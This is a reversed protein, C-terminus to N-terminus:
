HIDSSRRNNARKIKECLCYLGEYNGNLYVEAFRLRPTYEMGIMGALFYALPIRLLSKDSYNAILCWEADAPMGLLSKSNEEGFENILDINYPKKPFNWTSNGRGEIEILGDYLENPDYTSFDSNIIQMRAKRKTDKMIEEQPNIQDIHITVVGKPSILLHSNEQAQTYFPVFFAVIILYFSITRNSLLNRM